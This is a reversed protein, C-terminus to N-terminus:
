AKRLAEWIIEEINELPIPKYIISAVGLKLLKEKEEVDTYGTIVIFSSKVAMKKAHRILSIGGAGTSFKLDCFILDPKVREIIAWGKESTDAGHVEQYGLAQLYEIFDRVFEKEDDVILIKTEKM